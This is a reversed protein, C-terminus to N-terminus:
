EVELDETQEQIFELIDKKPPVEIITLDNEVETGPWLKELNSQEETELIASDYAELSESRKKSEYNEALAIADKEEM